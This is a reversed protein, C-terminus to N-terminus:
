LPRCIYPNGNITRLVPRPAPPPSVEPAAVPRICGEPITIWFKPVGPALVRVRYRNGARYPTVAEVIGQRGAHGCGTIEVGDGRAAIQPPGLTVSASAASALLAILSAPILIKRM